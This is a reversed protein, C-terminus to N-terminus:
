EPAHAPIAVIFLLPLVDKKIVVPLRFIRESSLVHPQFAVAAMFAMYILVLGGRLTIGAVLLVIFMLPLFALLALGAM